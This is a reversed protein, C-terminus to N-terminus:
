LKKDQMRMIIWDLKVVVKYERKNRLLELEINVMYYALYWEGM